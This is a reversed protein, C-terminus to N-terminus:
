RIRQSRLFCLRSRPRFFACSAQVLATVVLGRNKAWQAQTFVTGATQHGPRCSGYLSLDNRVTGHSGPASIGGAVRCCRSATSTAKSWAPTWPLSLRNTVADQDARLGTVFSCLAPEGTALAATMWGKLRKRGRRETMILAFDRVSATVAALEPSTALIPAAQSSVAGWPQASRSRTSCPTAPAIVPKLGGPSSASYAVKRAIRRALNGKHV